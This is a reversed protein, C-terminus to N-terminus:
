KRHPIGEGNVNAIVFTPYQKGSSYFHANETYISLTERFVEGTNPFNVLDSNEAIENELFVDFEQKIDLDYPVTIYFKPYTLFFFVLERVIEDCTFRDVAYIDLSWKVTVPIVKAKVVTGDEEIRSTEGRLTLHHNRGPTLSVSNRSLVIAPLQVKDKDFEALYQIARDPTIIHIRDDGTVERLKTVLSEEYLYVSM